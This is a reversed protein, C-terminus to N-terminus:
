AELVLHDRHVLADHNRVGDPRDGRVWAAATESDCHVLGRGVREGSTAVLDVVDGREFRGRVERVGVALLSAGRDRLAAVAGDDLHLSGRPAAAFAIWRHRASLGERAPFWTGEDDGALVSELAGPTRGSAIVAHVGGRAALRAAAVKSAMGGRSGARVEEAPVDEAADLVVRIRRADAHDRPNKDFWGEVDTLLVLLDADLKTAVLASLRDNDGFVPRAAGELFALEDTSVVDNENLIPIVGRRLLATLTSRLNLYRERDDLDAETLLVQASVHGLRSLGQEYLAILRGQGVAACAQREALERPAENLGLAEMGLGLAGSSVILVERGAERAAAAAEVVSFLRALALRGSDHTLVRTGLKLVVRHASLLPPRTTM